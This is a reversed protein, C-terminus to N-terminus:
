EEEADGVTSTNSESSRYQQVSYSGLLRHTTDLAVVRTAPSTYTKKM